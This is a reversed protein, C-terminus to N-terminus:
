SRAIEDGIDELGQNYVASDLWGQFSLGNNEIFHLVDPVSFAADQPHLFTDVIAADFKMEFSNDFYWRAPHRPPLRQIIGRVIAVGESSQPVRLRRFADQLAYVGTRGFRGYLMLLMAGHLPELVSALARLGVGPDRLHHLVGSSIILDFSRGLTESDCLDMRRLTLNKLNHRDCLMEEHAISTQSFDIGIFQCEPNNFALVAAQMTGCGAVLVNLGQRPRGEPWYQTSNLGPDYQNYNYSQQWVSIDNGPEPYAYNSYKDEVSKSSRM